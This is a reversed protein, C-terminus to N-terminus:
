IGPVVLGNEYALVVLQARDHADLKSMIRATHTKVTAPSIVLSGAIEENTLGQAVMVLVERERDTLTDLKVTPLTRSPRSHVFTEVLRRTISPQILADGAAIVELAHVIEDPDSDKLLFGSAGASLADYVYEDIDFTTLILVRTDCLRPDATIERTAKIGNEVPMRVDMLVVDPRLERAREVAVKGDSASGVVKINEYSSLILRFGNRVLEQDDAILVRIIEREFSAEEAMRAAKAGRERLRRQIERSQEDGSDIGGILVEKRSARM